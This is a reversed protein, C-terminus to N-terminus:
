WLQVRHNGWDIIVLDHYTEQYQNYFEIMPAVGKKTSTFIIDGEHMIICTANKEELLNVLNNM